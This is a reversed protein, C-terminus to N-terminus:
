AGRGGCHASSFGSPDVPHTSFMPSTPGVHDECFGFAVIECFHQIFLAQHFGIFKNKKKLDM